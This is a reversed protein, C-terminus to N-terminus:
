REDNASKEAEKAKADGSAKANKADDQAKRIDTGVESAFGFLFTVQEKFTLEESAALLSKATDQLAATPAQVAEQKDTLQKRAAALSEQRAAYQSASKETNLRWRQSLDIPAGLGAEREFSHLRDALAEAEVTARHLRSVVAIRSESIAQQQRALSSLQAELLAANRGTTEALANVPKSSACANLALTLVAACV